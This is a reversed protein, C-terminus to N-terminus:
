GTVIDVRFGVHAPVLAAVLQDVGRLADQDAEDVILRLVVEPLAGGVAVSGPETSIAVGGSESIEVVAGTMLAVTDRLGRVTGRRRHLEVAQSVLLRARQGLQAQDAHVALWQGLWLLHDDPATGPDLYAPWSDLVAFIPAVVEDLAATFRTALDDEAFVAPLARVLPHPSRLGEVTGRM